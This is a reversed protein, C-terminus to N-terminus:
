PKYPLWAIIAPAQGALRRRTRLQWPWGLGRGGLLGEQEAADEHEAKSLRVYMNHAVAHLTWLMHLIYVYM